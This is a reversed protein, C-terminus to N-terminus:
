CIMAKLLFRVGNNNSVLFYGCQSVLSDSIGYVLLLVNETLIHSNDWVKGYFTELKM